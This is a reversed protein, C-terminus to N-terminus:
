KRFSLNKVNRLLDNENIFNDLEIFDFRNKENEELMKRLIKGLGVINNYREKIEKIM